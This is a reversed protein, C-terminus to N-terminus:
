WVHFRQVSFYEFGVGPDRYVRVDHASGGADLPGTDREVDDKIIQFCTAAKILDKLIIRSQGFLVNLRGYTKTRIQGRKQRM